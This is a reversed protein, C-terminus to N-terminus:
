AAARGGGRAEEGGGGVGGARTGAGGLEPNRIEPKPNRTEPKPNRTEPKPNRVQERGRVEREVVVAHTAKRVERRVEEVETELRAKDEELLIVRARETELEGRVRALEVGHARERAEEQERAAAGCQALEAAHRLTQQALAEETGMARAVLEQELQEIVKQHQATARLLAGAHEEAQRALTADAERLKALMEREREQAQAQMRQEAEAVKREWAMASVASARLEDRARTESSDAEAKVAKLRETLEGMRREYEAAAGAERLGGAEVAARLERKEEEAQAVHAQMSACAGELQESRARADMLQRRLDSVEEAMGDSKDHWYWFMPSGRVLRVAIVALKPRWERKAGEGGNGGARAGAEEEGGEKEEAMNRSIELVVESGQEGQLASRLAATDWESINAGDVSVVLDGVRISGERAASGRASVERVVAAPAGREKECLLGVGCRGLNDGGSGPMGGHSLLAGAQPPYQSQVITPAVPPEPREGAALSLAHGCSGGAAAAAPGPLSPLHPLTQAQSARLRRNPSDPVRLADRTVTGPSKPVNKNPSPPGEGSPAPVAGVTRSAPVSTHSSAHAAAPVATVTAPFASPDRYIAEAASQQWAEAWSLQRVPPQQVGQPQTNARGHQPQPQPQASPSGPVLDLEVRDEGANPPRIAAAEAARQERERLQRESIFGIFPQRAPGVGSM